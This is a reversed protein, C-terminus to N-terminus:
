KRADEFFRQGWRAHHEPCEAFRQHGNTWPQCCTGFLGDRGDYEDERREERRRARKDVHDGLGFEVGLSAVKEMDRDRSGSAAGTPM